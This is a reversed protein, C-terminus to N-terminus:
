SLLGIVIIIGLIVIVTIILNKIFRGLRQAFSLNDEAEDASTLNNEGGFRMEQLLLLAQEMTPRRQVRRRRSLIERVMRLKGNKINKLHIIEFRIASIRIAKKCRIFIFRLENYFLCILVM